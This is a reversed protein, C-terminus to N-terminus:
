RSLLLCESGLVGRSIPSGLPQYRSPTCRTRGLILETWDFGDQHRSPTYICYPYGFIYAILVTEHLSETTALQTFLNSSSWTGGSAITVQQERLSSRVPLQHRTAICKGSAAPRSSSRLPDIYKDRHPARAYTATIERGAKDEGRELERNAFSPKWSAM